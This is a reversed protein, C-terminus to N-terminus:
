GATWLGDPFIESEYQRGEAVAKLDERSPAAFAAPFSSVDLVSLSPCVFFEIDPLSRSGKAYPKEKLYEQYAFTGQLL